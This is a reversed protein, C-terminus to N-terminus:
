DVSFLVRDACLLAPSRVNEVWLVRGFCVFLVRLAFVLLLCMGCSLHFVGRVM